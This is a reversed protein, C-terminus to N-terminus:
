QLVQDLGRHRTCHAADINAEFGCPLDGIATSRRRSLDLCRSRARLHRRNRGARHRLKGGREVVHCALHVRLKSGNFETATRLRADARTFAGAREFHHFGVHTALVDVGALTAPRAFLRREIGCLLFIGRTGGVGAGPHLRVVGHLVGFLRHLGNAILLSRQCGLPLLGGRHVCVVQDCETEGLDCVIRVAPGTKHLGGQLKRTGCAECVERVVNRVWVIRRQGNRAVKIHAADRFTKTTRSNTTSATRSESMCKTAVKRATCDTTTDATEGAAGESLKCEIAVGTSVSRGCTARETTECTTETTCTDTAQHASLRL